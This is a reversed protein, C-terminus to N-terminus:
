WWIGLTFRNNDWYATNYNLSYGLFNLTKIVEKMAEPSAIGSHTCVKFGNKSTTNILSFCEELVKNISKFKQKNRNEEMIKDQEIFKNLNENSIKRADLAKIM